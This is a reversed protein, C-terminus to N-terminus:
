PSYYIDSAGNSYIKNSFDLAPSIDSINAMTPNVVLREKVNVSALYAYRAQKTAPYILLSYSQTLSIMGYSLLVFDRADEDAYVISNEGIYQSLWTASAVDQDPIYIKYSSTRIGVISSIKRADVDLSYSEPYTGAIHDVFGVSFLFSAILILTVLKLGLNKNSFVGLIGPRSIVQKIGNKILGFITLGGLVFFPALFIITIAYFRTLQFSTAFNPVVFCLILILMCAIAMLRYRSDFEWKKRRLTLEAVGVLIFFNQVYFVMKHVTSVINTAPSTLTTLQPSRARPNFIDNMFNYYIRRVDASLKMLPADSVYLYWSFTMAFLMLVTVTGLTEKSSSHRGWSRTFIFALVVLLIYFYSIAYHSVVIAAGFILFLIRKKQSPIERDVILFISLVLFLEGIMQRALSLMEIGYFSEPASMFFFASLIAIKKDIQSEYIRYLVLPVLAFTLPYVLKFIIEETTNLFVSYITPLVTISLVSEFRAADSYVGVGPSVWYGNALTLRFVYDELHIDYGMLYKSILSTHLLLATSIALMILLYLKSNNKSSISLWFLVAIAMIVILLLSTIDFLAGIISLIPLSVLLMTYLLSKKTGLGLISHANASAFFDRRCTVFFLVLTLGSFTATLPIISLPESIGFALAVQDMILGVFMLAAISLGVSFLFVDVKKNEFKLVKLILFGPVFTLYIFCVIQRFVPIDVIIAVYVLLHILLLAKVYDKLIIV